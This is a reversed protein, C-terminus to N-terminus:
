KIKKKEVAGSNVQNRMKVLFHVIIIRKFFM